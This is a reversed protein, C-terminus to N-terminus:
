LFVDLKIQPVKWEAKCKEKNYFTCHSYLNFLKKEKPSLEINFFPEIDSWHIVTVNKPNNKNWEVINNESYNNAVVIVILQDVYYQYGRKDKQKPNWKYEVNISTRNATIDIGITEQTKLTIVLELRRGKALLKNKEFKDIKDKDIREILLGIFLDEIKRGKRIGYSGTEISKNLYGFKKAWVSFGGHWRIGKALDGRGMKILEERVPFYGIKSIIKNLGRTITETNWYGDPKKIIAFGITERLKIYGGFKVIAASLKGKKLRILEPHTPMHGLKEILRQVEKIINEGTWHGDAVKAPAYGMIKRWKRFGGNDQIAHALDGRQIDKLKNETPFKGHKKIYTNIEEEIRSHLWYGPRKKGIKYGMKRQWKNFGGNITIAQMLDYRRLQRLNPATPFHGLQLIIKEIEKKINDLTWYGRPKRISPSTM